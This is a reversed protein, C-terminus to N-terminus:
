VIRGQASMRARKRAARVKAEVVKRRDAQRETETRARKGWHVSCWPMGEPDYRWVWGGCGRACRIGFLHNPEAEGMVLRRVGDVAEEVDGRYVRTPNDAPHMTVMYTRRDRVFTTGSVAEILVDPRYYALAARGAVLVLGCSEPIETPHLCPYFELDVASTIDHLVAIIKAPRAPPLTLLAIPSTSPLVSSADVQPTPLTLM